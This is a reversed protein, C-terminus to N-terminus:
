KEFLWWHTRDFGKDIEWYGERIVKLGSFTALYHQKFDRKWLLDSHGRYEIVTEQDAYYEACLIYRASTRYIEALVSALNELKIHILVGATFVLDAYQDIFPLQFADGRLVSYLSSSRRAIDIATANPEIGVINGSVSGIEAIARLNHGRNCGVEIVNQLELGGLMEKWAPLRVGWDINNRETYADGFDSQWKDLQANGM